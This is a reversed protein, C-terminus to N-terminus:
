EARGVGSETLVSGVRGVARVGRGLSSGVGEDAGVVVGVSKGDEGGVAGIIVARVLKGFFQNREHDQVGAGALRERDIAIAFVDAVPEVDLVVAAGKAGYEGVAMDSFGVVDAAAAFFLVELDDGGDARQEIFQARVVGDDRVFLEDSEDFITRTMVAAVRHVCGLNLAFQVPTGLFCEYGSDAFGGAPIKSM